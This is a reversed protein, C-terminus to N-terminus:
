NKKFGKKWCLTDLMKSLIFIQIQCHKICIGLLNQLVFLMMDAKSLILQFIKLKILMKLFGIIMKLFLMISLIIVNLEQLHKLSMKVILHIYHKKQQYSSVLQHKGSLGLKQQKLVFIEIM